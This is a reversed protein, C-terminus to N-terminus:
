SKIYLDGNVMEGIAVPIMDSAKYGDHDEASFKYSSGFIGEYDAGHAEIAEKVADPDASGALEIAWQLLKVCEYGSAITTPNTDRKGVGYEGYAEVMRNYLDLCRGEMTVKNEDQVWPGIGLSSCRDAGPGALEKFNTMVIGTYGYIDMSETYGVREIAKVIKAGDAGLTWFLGCDANANKLADAVPTMDADDAKYTIKAVPEVGYELCWKEIAAMGDMGLASTDAVLAVREYGREKATLALAEAQLGNPPMVRFAYPFQQADIVADSTAICIVSVVKNQTLYPAIASAPTSNTPGIIFDVHEKEVLEEAATKCTTPDGEDDRYIVEVARGLIGGAANIEEVALDIGQQQAKGLSASPGSMAGLVGIRIPDSPSSQSSGPNNTGPTQSTNAATNGCGAISLMMIGSLLLALLNKRKM